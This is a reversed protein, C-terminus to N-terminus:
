VLAVANTFAVTTPKIELRPWYIVKIEKSRYCFVRHETGGNFDYNQKQRMKRQLKCLFFLNYRFTHIQILLLSTSVTNLTRPLYKLM